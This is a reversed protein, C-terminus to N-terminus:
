KIAFPCSSPCLPDPTTPLSHIFGQYHGHELLQSSDRLERFTSVDVFKYHVGDIEGDRPPRTTYPVTKQYVNNRIVIQLESYDEGALIEKISSPISHNNAVEMYFSEKTAFLGDLLRRVDRLLMGSIKRENISLIIDDVALVSLLDPHLVLEILILSGEASGGHITFPVSPPQCSIRVAKTTAELLNCKKDADDSKSLQTTEQILDISNLTKQLAALGAEDNDESIQKSSLVKKSSM